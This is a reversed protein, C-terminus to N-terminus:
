DDVFLFLLLQISVVFFDLSNSRKWYLWMCGPATM